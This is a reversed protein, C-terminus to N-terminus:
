ADIFAALMANFRDAHELQAWHGCRNFVILSSNPMVGALRMSHEVGVTRDDRGHILLSPTTTRALGAFVEDQGLGDINMAAAGKLFNSLHAPNALANASRQNVLEDTAYAPDFVMVNVLRRFNEPSPDAYTAFLIKLGETPGGPQFFLQPGGPAPAGMTICHTVRDNHLATMMLAALGGMSNGVLAAKEIGLGDMFLRTAEVNALFRNEGTPDYESSKGWGPFDLLYVKYRQALKAFNPNFNSWGSAGPGSGHLMILPHGEGAVHYHLRWRPTDIYQSTQAETSMM